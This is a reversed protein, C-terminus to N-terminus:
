WDKELAERRAARRARQMARAQEELQELQELLKAMEQPSLQTQQGDVPQVDQPETPEQSADGEENDPQPENQQPDQEGDQEQDESDQPEEQGDEGPEQESPDGEGDEDQEGDESEQQEDSEQDENEQQEQQRRELEEKMERLDDMRRNLAAISERASTAESAGLDSSERLADLFRGRAGGLQQLGADIAEILPAPEVEPPIGAPDLPVGSESLGGEAMANLTVGQNFFARFALEGSSGKDYERLASAYDGSRYQADALTHAVVPAGPWEVRARQILDLALEPDGDRLAQQAGRTLKRGLAEDARAGPTLLFVAMAALTACYGVRSRM